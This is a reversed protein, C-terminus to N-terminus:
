WKTMGFTQTVGLDYDCVWVYTVFIYLNLQERVNKILYLLRIVIVFKHLIRTM